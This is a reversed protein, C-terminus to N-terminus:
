NSVGLIPVTLIPKEYRVPTGDNDPIFPLRDLYDQDKGLLANPLTDGIYEIVDPWAWKMQVLWSATILMDPKTEWHRGDIEGGLTVPTAGSTLAHGGDAHMVVDETLWRTHEKSGALAGPNPKDIRLACDAGLVTIKAAGMVLALDIARSVANLGSGVM